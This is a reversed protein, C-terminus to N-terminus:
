GATLAGNSNAVADKIAKRIARTMMGKVKSKNNRWTSFFFPNGGWKRTGFEAWRTYFAEKNGAYITLKYSGTGTFQKTKVSGLTVTGAPAEGWTWAISDRIAGPVIPQGKHRRDRRVTEDGAYVPARSKMQSVVSDAAKEMAARVQTEVLAPLTKRLAQELEKIGTVM